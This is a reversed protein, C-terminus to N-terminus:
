LPNCRMCWMAYLGPILHVSRLRVIFIDRATLHQAMTCTMFPTLDNIRLATVKAVVQM